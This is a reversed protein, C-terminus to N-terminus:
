SVRIPREDGKPRKISSLTLGQFAPHITPQVLAHNQPPPPAQNITEMPGLM